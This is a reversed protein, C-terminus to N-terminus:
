ARQAGPMQAIALDGRQRSALALAGGERGHEGQSRLEQQEVLGGRLEVVGPDVRELVGQERQGGGADRDHDGLVM